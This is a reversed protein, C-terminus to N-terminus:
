VQSLSAKLFDIYEIASLLIEFADDSQSSSPINPLLNKLTVMTMQLAVPDEGQTQSGIVPRSAPLSETAMKEAPESKKKM